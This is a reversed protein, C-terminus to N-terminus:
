GWSCASRPSVPYGWHKVRKGAAHGLAKRTGGIMLIEIADELAAYPMLAFEFAALMELLAAKRAPLGEGCPPPVLREFEDLFLARDVRLLECFGCVEADHLPPEPHHFERHRGVDLPLQVDQTQPHVHAVPDPNEVRARDRVDLPLAGHRLDHDEAVHRHVFHLVVVVAIRVAGLAVAVRSQDCLGCGAELRQVRPALREGAEELALDDGERRRGGAASWRPARRVAAPRARV